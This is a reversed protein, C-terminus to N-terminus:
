RVVSQVVAEDQGQNVIRITRTISGGVSATGVDFPDAIAAGTIDILAPAPGPANLGGTVGMDEGLAAGLCPSSPDLLYDGAALLDPNLDFNGAGFWASPYTGIAEVDTYTISAVAGGDLTLALASGNGWLISADM